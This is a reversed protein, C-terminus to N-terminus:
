KSKRPDDAPNLYQMGIGHLQVITEGKAWVFHQMGAPWYAFARVCFHIGIQMLRQESGM